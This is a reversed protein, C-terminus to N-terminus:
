RKKYHKSRMLIEIAETYTVRAFDNAVVFKLTDVLGMPRRDTTKMNKETEVIREDLYQLDEAYHELCYNILYKVFDEALDMDNELDAFAIEPEIM